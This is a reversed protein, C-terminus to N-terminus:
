RAQRAAEKVVNELEGGVLPAIVNEWWSWDPEKNEKALKNAIKQFQSAGFSKIRDEVFKRAAQVVARRQQPGLTPGVYREVAKFAIRGGLKRAALGFWRNMKDGVYPSAGSIAVDVTADVLDKSTINEGGALRATLDTVNQAATGTASVMAAQGTTLSAGTVAGYASTVGGAAVAAYFKIAIEAQKGGSEVMNQWRTLNDAARRMAVAAKNLSQRAKAHDGKVRAAEANRLHNEAEPLTMDRLVVLTLSDAGGFIRAWHSFILNAFGSNHATNYASQVNQRLLRLDSRGLAILERLNKDEQRGVERRIEKLDAEITVVPLHYEMYLDKGTLRKYKLRWQMQASKITQARHLLRRREPDSASLQSLLDLISQLEINNLEVQCEIQRPTEPM